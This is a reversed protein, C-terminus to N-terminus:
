PSSSSGPRSSMSSSPTSASPGDGPRSLHRHDGEQAREGQLPGFGRRMLGHQDAFDFPISPLPRRDDGFRMPKIDSRALPALSRLTWDIAAPGHSDGLGLLIGIRFRAAEPCRARAERVLLNTLGPALGVSLVALTRKERALGDLAEIRSLVADTASIDIYRAGRELVARALDATQTDLCCIVVDATSLPAAWSEPRDLDLMAGECGLEAAVAAAKAGDRGAVTVARDAALLRRAIEQGVHGYGGIILIRKM